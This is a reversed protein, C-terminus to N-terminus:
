KRRKLIFPIHVQDTKYDLCLAYMVMNIGVRLSMERAHDGGTGADFRWDDQENKALAGLIDNTTIVALLRNDRVLAEMYAHRPVRGGHHKLLYFTKYLVHDPSLRQIKGAPVLTALLQKASRHFPGEVDGESLDFWLLGGLSIYDRLASLTEPRPAPIAMSGHVVLLPYEFLRATNNPDLAVPVPDAAVSTRDRIAWALTSLASDRTTDHDTAWHALQVDPKQRDLPSNQTQAVLPLILILFIHM